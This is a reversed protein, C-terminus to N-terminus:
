GQPRIEVRTSTEIGKARLKAELADMAQRLAEAAGAAFAARVLQILQDPKLMVVKIAVVGGAPTPQMEVDAHQICCQGLAEAMQSMVMAELIESPIAKTAGTPIIATHNHIPPMVGPQECFAQIHSEDLHIHGIQFEKM